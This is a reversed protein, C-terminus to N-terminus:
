IYWTIWLYPDKESKSDKTDNKEGSYVIWTQICMPLQFFRHAHLKSSLAWTKLVPVCELIAHNASEEAEGYWICYNDCRWYPM